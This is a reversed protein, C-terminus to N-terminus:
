LRYHPQSTFSEDVLELKTQDSQSLAQWLDTLRKQAQPHLLNPALDQLPKLVYKRHIIERRPIQVLGDDIILDDCLLLDIDLQRDSYRPKSRDRGHRDELQQLWLKLQHPKFASSVKIVLNFFDHGEFGFAASRYVPSVETLAFSARFFHLCSQINHRRNLNSGIGLFYNHKRATTM